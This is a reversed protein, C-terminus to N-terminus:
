KEEAVCISSIQQGRSSRVSHEGVTNFSENCHKTNYKSARTWFIVAENRYYLAHGYLLSHAPSSSLDSALSKTHHLPRALQVYDEPKAQIRSHLIQHPMLNSTTILARFLMTVIHIPRTCSCKVWALHRAPVWNLHQALCMSIMAACTLFESTDLGWSIRNTPWWDKQQYTVWCITSPWSQYRVKQM